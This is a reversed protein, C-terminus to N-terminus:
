NDWSIKLWAWSYPEPFKSKTDSPRNYDIKFELKSFHKAIALFLKENSALNEQRHPVKQFEYCFAGEAAKKLIQKQIRNCYDELTADFSCKESKRAVRRADSILTM